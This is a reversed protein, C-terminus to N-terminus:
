QARALRDPEFVERPANRALSRLERLSFGLVADLQRAILREFLHDAPDEEGYQLSLAAIARAGRLPKAHAQPRHLTMEGTHGGSTTAVDVQRGGRDLKM